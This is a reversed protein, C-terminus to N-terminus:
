KAPTPELAILRADIARLALSLGAYRMGDLSDKTEWQAIASQTLGAIRAIETQTMGAKERRNRFEKGTLNTEKTKSM